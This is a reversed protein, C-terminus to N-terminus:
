RSKLMQSARLIAALHDSSGDDYNRQTPVPAGNSSPRDRGTMARRQSQRGRKLQKQEAEISALRDNMAANKQALAQALHPAFKPDVARLLAADEDTLGAQKAVSEAYHPAMVGQLLSQAAKAQQDLKNRYYGILKAAAQEWNQSKGAEAIVTEEEIRWADNAKRLEALQREQMLRDQEVQLREREQQIETQSQTYLAQYDPQEDDAEDEDAYDDADDEPSLLAMLEDSSDPAGQDEDNSTQITEADDADDSEGFLSQLTDDLM